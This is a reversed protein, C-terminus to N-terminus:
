PTAEGAMVTLPEGASGGSLSDQTLIVTTGPTLVARLATRFNEPLRLRSREEVTLEQDTEPPQGPLKLRIWHDGAEDRASMAYAAPRTIARELAITASGIEIGNRLVIMRRDRASVLISVPGSPSLEPNWVSSGGQELAESGARANGRLFAPTPAFRPVAEGDTILVTLGIRTVDYLLRAFALPLRICGHSAPYGPLNGAHLAIGDWTLRQMFPMPADNYLNSKHDVRKQLITFVGTPTEHGAKGTSVTTIGIPIGNRYVYARQVRLSVILLIPGTPAVEPAWLYEGPKMRRVADEVSPGDLDVQADALGSRALVLAGFFLPASRLVHRRDLWRGKTMKWRRNAVPELTM